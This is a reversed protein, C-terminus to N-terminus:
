AAEAVGAHSRGVSRLTTTASVQHGEVAQSIRHTTCPPTRRQLQPCRADPCGPNSLLPGLSNPTRFCRYGKGAGNRGGFVIQESQGASPLPPPPGTRIGRPGPRTPQWLPFTVGGTFSVFIAARDDSFEGPVGTDQFPQPHPPVGSPFVNLTERAAESIKM